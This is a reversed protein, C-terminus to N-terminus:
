SCGLTGFPCPRCGTTRVLNCYPLLLGLYQTEVGAVAPMSSAPSFVGTVRTGSTTVLAVVVNGIAFATAPLTTTSLTSSHGDWYVFNCSVFQPAACNVKNTIMTLTSQRLRVQRSGASVTGESYTIVLGSAPIGMGPVGTQASAPIVPWGLGLIVAVIVSFRRM